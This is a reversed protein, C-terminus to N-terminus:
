YLCVMLLNMKGLMMLWFSPLSFVRRLVQPVDEREEASDTIPAAGTKDGAGIEAPQSIYRDAIVYAAFVALQIAAGLRFVNRWLGTPQSVIGAATKPRSLVGGYLLSAIMSGIRSTGSILGLQSGWSAAPFRDRVIKGCAGWASAYVFSLAIWLPGFQALSNTFSSLLLLGAMSLMTVKITLEGGYKDTPPGLIFKGLMTAFTAIALMSKFNFASVSTEVFENKLISLCTPLTMVDIVISTYTLSLCNTTLNSKFKSIKENSQSKIIQPSHNSSANM